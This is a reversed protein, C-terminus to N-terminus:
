GVDGKPLLVRKENPGGSNEDRITVTVKTVDGSVDYETKVVIVSINGGDANADAIEQKLDDYQEQDVKDEVSDLLETSGENNDYEAVTEKGDITYVVTIISPRKSDGDYKIDAHISVDKGKDLAQNIENEMAKYPGSNITGRIPLLNEIGKAGGLIRSLIHGGQDGERRDKGGVEKQAKLDREGEPTQRANGDCSIIRGQADTKYVVGDICYETDPKLEGNVKFITGNDDKEYVNGERGANGDADNMMNSDARASGDVGDMANSDAGASDADDMTKSDTGASDAGDMTKSDTEASGDAKDMMNLDTRGGETESNRHETSKEISDDAEAYDDAFLRDMAEGSNFDTLEPTQPRVIEVGDYDDQFLDKYINDLEPDKRDNEHVRGTEPRSENHYERELGEM